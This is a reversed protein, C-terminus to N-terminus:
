QRWGNLKNVEAKAEDKTQCDKVFTASTKKESDWKWIGWLSRHPAYHYANKM